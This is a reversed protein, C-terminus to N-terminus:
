GTLYSPINFTTKNQREYDFKEYRHNYIALLLPSTINGNKFIIYCLKGPEPAVSQVGYTVPCPVNKLIERIEDTDNETVAVTATNTYRDYSMIVGLSGTMQNVLNQNINSNTKNIPM